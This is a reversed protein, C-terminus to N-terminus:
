RSQISVFVEPFHRSPKESLRLVTNGRTGAPTRSVVPFPLKFPLLFIPRLNVLFPFLPKTDSANAPPLFCNPFPLDESFIVKSNEETASFLTKNLGEGLM